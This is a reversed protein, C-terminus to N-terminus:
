KHKTTRFHDFQVYVSIFKQVYSIGDCTIGSYKRRTRTAANHIVIICKIYRKLIEYGCQTSALVTSVFWLDPSNRPHFHITPSANCWVGWDASARM